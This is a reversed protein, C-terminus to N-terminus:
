AAGTFAKVQDERMVIRWGADELVAEQTAKDQYEGDPTSTTLVRQITAHDGEIKVSPFAYEQIAGSPQKEWYARYQELSVQEKSEESFLEYVQEWATMNSYEYQLALIEQPQPGQPDEETLDIVGVEEAGPSATATAYSGSNVALLEPEVDQPVDFIFQSTEVQRPALEMGYTDSPHAAADSEEYVETKNGVKVHLMASLDSQVTQSSTNTVSYNVVIFKGAQSFADQTEDIFPDVLYYYHDTVFYDLVRFDFSSTEVSEGVIGAIPMNGVVATTTEEEQGPAPTVTKPQAEEVGARKEQKEAPSGAQGCGYLLAVALLIMLVRAM